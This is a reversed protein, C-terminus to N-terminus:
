RKRESTQSDGWAQEGNGSPSALTKDPRCFMVTRLGSLRLAMLCFVGDVFVNETGLDSLRLAMLCFGGDVFVNETGLGSLRLAMLCFAGDVFM